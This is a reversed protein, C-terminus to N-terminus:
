NFSKPAKPEDIFFWTCGVSAATSAVLAIAALALSMVKKM